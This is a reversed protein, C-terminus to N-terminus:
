RLMAVLPACVNSTLILKLGFDYKALTRFIIATGQRVQASPSQFLEPLSDFVDADVVAQAGDLSQAICDLARTAGV